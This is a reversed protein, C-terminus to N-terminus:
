EIVEDARALISSPITLDLAKATKLNVVLEIDKLQVVPLDGPKAGGLIRGTYVGAQRYAASFDGGYSVLGGVDIYERSDYIAPLSHRAAVATLAIRRDEFFPDAEVVLAQVGANALATFAGDFDAEFRAKIVHMPVGQAAAVDQVTKADREGVASDPNILMGFIRANPVLERLIEFRKTVLEATLLAAGTVNGGPRSLSSVLGLAMLDGGATFVVPISSTARKAAQASASGGTAVIVAVKRSVLETALSPLRDYHGDAWRFEIAVNEGEVYGAEKLGQRFAAVRHAFGAASAGNLFGIVPMSSQQARAALPWAAAGSVLALFERRRM